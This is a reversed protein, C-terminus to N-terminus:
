KINEAPNYNNALKWYELLCDFMAWDREMDVDSQTLNLVGQAQTSIFLNYRRAEPILMGKIDRGLGLGYAYAATQLHHEVYPKMDKIVKKNKTKFDLIINDRKSHLDVKGGFGYRHSFAAEAIWEVGPFREEILEIVPVIWEEEKECIKGTTYYAELANHLQNGRKAANRAENGAGITVIKRWASEDYNLQYPHSLVTNLVQDIKYTVLAPKDLQGIITTVSPVLGLKKADGLTTAREGTGNAYPVTYKPEGTKADYWHSM